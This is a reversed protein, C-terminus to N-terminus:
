HTPPTFYAPHYRSTKKNRTHGDSGKEEWYHKNVHFPKMNSKPEVEDSDCTLLISYCAFCRRNPAALPGPDLDRDSVHPRLIWCLDSHLSVGVPPTYSGRLQIQSPFLFPIWGLVNWYLVSLIPKSNSQKPKVKQLIYCSFTLCTTSFLINAHTRSLSLQKAKGACSSFNLQTEQYIEWKWRNPLIKVARQHVTLVLPLM